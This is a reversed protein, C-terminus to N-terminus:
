SLRSCSKVQAAGRQRAALSLLPFPTTLRASSLNLPVTDPSLLQFFWRASGLAILIPRTQRGDLFKCNPSSSSLHAKEHGRGGHQVSVCVCAAFVCAGVVASRNRQLPNTYGAELTTGVGEMHEM